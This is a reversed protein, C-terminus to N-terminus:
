QFMEMVGLLLETGMHKQDRYLDSTGVVREKPNGMHRISILARKLCSQLVMMIVGLFFILYEKIDSDNNLKRQQSLSPKRKGFQNAEPDLHTKYVTTPQYIEKFIHAKEM